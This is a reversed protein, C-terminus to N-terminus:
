CYWAIFNSSTCFTTTGLGSNLAQADIIMGRYVGIMILVIGLLMGVGIATIIFKGFAYKIDKYALNIM